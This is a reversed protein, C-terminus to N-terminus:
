SMFKLKRVSIEYEFIKLSNGNKCLVLKGYDSSFHTYGIYDCPSPTLNEGKGIFSVKNDRIGIYSKYYCPFLDDYEFPVYTSM